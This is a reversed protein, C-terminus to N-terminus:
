STPKKKADAARQDEIARQQQELARARERAHEKKAASVHAIRQPTAHTTSYAAAQIGALEAPTVPGAALDTGLQRHDFAGRPREKAPKPPEGNRGFAGRLKNDRVVV